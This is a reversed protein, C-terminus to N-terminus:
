AGNLYIKIINSLLEIAEEYPRQFSNRGIISGNGGGKNIADVEKYIEDETKASGGSFVVLRRGAFAVQMIHAVRNTLNKYTHMEKSYINVTSKDEIDESPLKIKIINAGILAAIHAAYAIVDLSTEGKKSLDGGRPYSWVIAALGYSKAEAIMESIEQIMELSNDSGPYITFGIATCGLYIADQINATISQNPEIDKHMLSNSSNAKLILPITGRFEDSIAELMGKPAAYANLGADLALKVHYEPDYAAPNVAFSKAPGHEFGQDVPLILMKGTGALKGNMLIKVLNSKVAPSESEYSKLIKKVNETLQM